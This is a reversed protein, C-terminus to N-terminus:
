MLQLSVIVSERFVLFAHADDPHTQAPNLLHACRRTVFRALDGREMWPSVLFRQDGAKLIQQFRLINAHCLRVWIAAERKLRKM